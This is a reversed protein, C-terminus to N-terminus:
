KEMVVFCKQSALKTPASPYDESITKLEQPNVMKIKVKPGLTYLFLTLAIVFYCMSSCKKGATSYQNVLQSNGPYFEFNHIFRKSGGEETTDHTAYDM